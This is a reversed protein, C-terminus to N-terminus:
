QTANWDYQVTVASSKYANDGTTSSGPTGGDPWSVTFKYTRAQGATFKDVAGTSPDGDLTQASMSAISGDYVTVPTGTTDEIKVNLVSALSGGNPGPVNSTVSKTLSYSGPMDGSNTITVSGNSTDGPKFGSPVTLIAGTPSNTTSLNGAAFANGPNSATSTFVAGSGIALGVAALVAGLAGLTRRPHKMLIATRTM